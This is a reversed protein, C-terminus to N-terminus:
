PAVIKGSAIKVVRDVWELGALRPDHTAVLVTKGADKFEALTRSFIQTNESDLNATPEDCLLIPPDNVLARAMAARQMEGGSLDRACLKAKHAIGAKEMAAAVRIQAEGAGMKLPVLPVGVNEAVTLEELLGFSQFIVGLTKARFRSAHRDPLKAIPLGAVVVEGRTPRRLAGVISLLTSKGSGSVGELVVLEGPKVHLDVGDLSQFSEGRGRGAEHIKDVGKLRIM